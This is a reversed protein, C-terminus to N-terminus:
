DKGRQKELFENVAKAFDRLDQLGVTASNVLIGLDVERYLHVLVNRLGVAKQLKESLDKKIIGEKILLPFLEKAYEPKGLSLGAVIHEAINIVAEVAIQMRHKTADTFISNKEEDLADRTVNSKKIEKIEADLYLLLNEVTKKDIAM